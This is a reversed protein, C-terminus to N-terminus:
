CCFLRFWVDARVQNMGLHVMWRMVSFSVYNYPYRYRLVPPLTGLRSMWGKKREVGSRLEPNKRWSVMIGDSDSEVEIGQESWEAFHDTTDIAASPYPVTDDKIRRTLPAWM